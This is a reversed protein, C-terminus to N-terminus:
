FASYIGAIKQTRAAGGCRRRIRNGLSVELGQAMNGSAKGAGIVYVKEKPDLTFADGEVYLMNDKLRVTREIMRAPEMESITKRFIDQALTKLASDAM